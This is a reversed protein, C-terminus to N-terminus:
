IANNRSTKRYFYPLVRIFQTLYIAATAQRTVLYEKNDIDSYLVSISGTVGYIYTTPFSFALVCIIRSGADNRNPYTMITAGTITLPVIGLLTIISMTINFWTVTISERVAYHINLIIYAAISLTALRSLTNFITSM